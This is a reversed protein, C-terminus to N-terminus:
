FDCFNSAFSGVPGLFCGTGSALGWYRLAAIGLFPDVKVFLGAVGLEKTQLLQVM